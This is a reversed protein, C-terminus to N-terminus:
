SRHRDYVRIWDKVLALVMYCKLHYDQTPAPETLRAELETQLTTWEELTLVEGAQAKDILDDMVRHEPQKLTPLVHQRMMDWRDQLREYQMAELRNMRDSRDQQVAELRAVRELLNDLRADLLNSARPDQATGQSSRRLFYWLCLILLGTPVGIRELAKVLVDVLEPSPLSDM